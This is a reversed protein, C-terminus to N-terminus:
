GKAGSDTRAPCVQGFSNRARETARLLWQRGGGSFTVATGCVRRCPQADGLRAERIGVRCQPGRVQIDVVVDPGCGPHVFGTCMGATDVHHNQLAPRPVPRSRWTWPRPREIEEGGRRRDDRAEVRCPAFTRPLASPASRWRLASDVSNVDSRAIASRTCSRLSRTGRAAPVQSKIHTQRSFRGGEQWTARRGSIGKVTKVPGREWM